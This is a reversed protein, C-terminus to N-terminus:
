SKAKFFNEIDTGYRDVIAKIKMRVRDLTFEKEWIDPDSEIDNVWAVMVRQAQEYTQVDSFDAVLIVAKDTGYKESPSWALLYPGVGDIDQNQLKAMQISSHGLLLNYESLAIDCAKDAGIGNIRKATKDKMVPWVTVMQKSPAVDKPIPPLTNFYALCINKYRAADFVSPLSRLAVIGYAAFAKPPYENPGAFVRTAIGSTGADSAMKEFSKGVDQVAKGVTHGFQREFEDFFDAAANSCYLTAVLACNLRLASYLLKQM